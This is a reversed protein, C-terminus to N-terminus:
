RGCAEAEERAQLPLRWKWAEVEDRVGTAFEHVYTPHEALCLRGAADFPMPEIRIGKRFVAVMDDGSVEPSRRQSVPAANIADVMDCALRHGRPLGVVCSVAHEVGDSVLGGIFPRRLQTLDTLPTVDYDLWVGGMERLLWWRVLNGRHRLRNAENVLDMRSEVWALCEAPLLDDFWDIVDDHLARVVNGRWPESPPLMLSAWYRHVKM